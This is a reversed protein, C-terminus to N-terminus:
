RNYLNTAPLFNYDIGTDIVAINVAEPNSESSGGIIVGSAKIKSDVFADLKSKKTSSNKM